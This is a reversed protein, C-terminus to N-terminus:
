TVLTVTKAASPPEPEERPEATTASASSVAVPRLMTVSLLDYEPTTALKVSAFTYALLTLKVAVM